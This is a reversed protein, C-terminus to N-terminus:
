ANLYRKYISKQEDQMQFLEKVLQRASESANPYAKECGQLQDEGMDFGKLVIRAMEAPSNNFFAKVSVTWWDRLRMAKSIRRPKGGLTLIARAAKLDIEEYKGITRRIEGSLQLSASKRAICELSNVAIRTGTLIKDYLKLTDERDIGEM